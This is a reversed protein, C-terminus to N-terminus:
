EFVARVDRLEAEKCFMLIESDPNLNIKVKM